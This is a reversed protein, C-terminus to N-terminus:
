LSLYQTRDETYNEIKFVYKRTSGIDMVEQYESVGPGVTLGPAMRAVIWLFKTWGPKAMGNQTSLERFTCVRRKPDRMQYTIQEGNSLQYKTKRWIKGKFRSLVYSFDFPTVARKDWLIETGGGGISFTQSANQAWVQGAGRLASYAAGSEMLEQGFSIEYIDVELKAASNALGGLTSSNRITVDLIASQFIVKASPDVSLGTGPTTVAGAISGSVSSMDNFRNTTSTFSYLALDATCQNGFTSNGFSSLQNILYQQTGLDKEQAWNVKNYFKKLGRRRYAPMRTKRYILRSDHQTTVGQGSSTQKRRRNMTFSRAARQAIGRATGMGSFSGYMRNRSAAARAYLNRALGYRGSRRALNYNGLSSM